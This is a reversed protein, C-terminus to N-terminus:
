FKMRSGTEELNVIKKFRDSRGMINQRHNILIKGIEYPSGCRKIFGSDNQGLKAILNVLRLLGLNHTIYM